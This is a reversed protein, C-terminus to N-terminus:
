TRSKEKGRVAYAFLGVGAAVSVNLSGVAGRLPISLVEDCARAVLRSLGEGESGLVLALRGPPRPSDITEAADSDLGVAWFGAERLRGIARALNAVEAVPLHVLAGASARVATPNVSAGRRRRIVLAEAGAAEATRAVAGLNHPDTVGDLVVVVADDGWARATLKSEDLAPPLAVRVAVGQHREGGALSDVHEEPVQEVELGARGAAEVVERLGSTSRASTSVLVRRARGSRVAELAPRRGVVVIQHAGRSSRRASM